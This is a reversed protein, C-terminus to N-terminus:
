KVGAAENIRQQRARMVLAETWSEGLERLAEETAASLPVPKGDGTRLYNPVQPLEISITVSITKAM